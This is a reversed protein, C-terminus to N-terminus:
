RSPWRAATGTGPSWPWPSAAVVAALGEYALYAAVLPALLWGLVRGLFQYFIRRRDV